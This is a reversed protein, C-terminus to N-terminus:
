NTRYSFYFSFGRTVNNFDVCTLPVQSVKSGSVTEQYLAGTTASAVVDFFATADTTGNTFAGMFRRGGLSGSSVAQPLSLSLQNTGAGPTGGATNRAVVAVTMIRGIKIWRGTLPTATFTPVTGGGASTLVPNYTGEDYAGADTFDKLTAFLKDYAATAMAVRRFEDEVWRRLEDFEKMSPPAQTPIYPM